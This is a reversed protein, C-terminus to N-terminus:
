ICSEGPQKQLSIHLLFCIELLFLAVPLLFKGKNANLVTKPKLHAWFFSREKSRQEVSVDRVSFNQKIKVELGLVRKGAGEM